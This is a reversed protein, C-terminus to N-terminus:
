GIAHSNAPRQWAADPFEAFARSAYAAKKASQFSASASTPRRRRARVSYAANGYNDLARPGSCWVTVPQEDTQKNRDAPVTRPDRSPRLALRAKRRLDARANGARFSFGTGVGHSRRGRLWPTAPV